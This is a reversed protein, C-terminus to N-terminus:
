LLLGHKEDMYCLLSFVRKIYKSNLSKQCFNPHCFDRHYVIAHMELIPDINLKRTCRMKNTIITALYKFEAVEEFNGENTM